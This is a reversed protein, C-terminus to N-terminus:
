YSGSIFGSIQVSANATLVQSAPNDSSIEWGILSGSFEFKTGDSFTTQWQNTSGTTSAQQVLFKHVANSPIYNVSFDLTGPDKLPSAVFEKFNVSDMSTIEITDSSINPGGITTVNPVNVFASGSYIGLKTIAYTSTSM